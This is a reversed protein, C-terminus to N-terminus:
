RAPATQRLCVFDSQFVASEYVLREALLLRFVDHQVRVQPYAPVFLLVEEQHPLDVYQRQRRFLLSHRYM